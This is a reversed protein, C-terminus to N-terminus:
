ASEHLRRGRRRRDDDLRCLAKWTAPKALAIYEALTTGCGGLCFM